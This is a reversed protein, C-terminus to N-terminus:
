RAGPAEKSHQQVVKAFELVRRCMPPQFMSLHCKNMPIKLWDALAAYADSRHRYLPNQNGPQRLWLPDFAQHAAKRAARTEANALTGFPLTGDSIGIGPVRVGQRHCGVYADCPRCIWFNLTKLDQRHPYISQGTVLAADGGCYPCTVHTM